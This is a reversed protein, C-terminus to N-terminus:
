QVVEFPPAEGEPRPEEALRQADRDQERRVVAEEIKISLLDSFAESDIYDVMRKNAIQKSQALVANRIAGWGFIAIIGVVLAMIGLVWQSMSLLTDIANMATQSAELAERIHVQEIPSPVTHLPASTAIPAVKVIVPTVAGAM